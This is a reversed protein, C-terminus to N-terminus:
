GRGGNTGYTGDGRARIYVWPWQDQCVWTVCYHLHFRYQRWIYNRPVNQNSQDEIYTDGNQCNWMSPLGMTWCWPPGWNKSIVQGGKWCDHVSFGVKAITVGFNNKGDWEHAKSGCHAATRTLPDADDIVTSGTVLTWSVIQSADVQAQQQPTLPPGTAGSARSTFAASLLLVGLIATVTRRM